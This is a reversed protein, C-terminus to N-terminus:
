ARRMMPIKGGMRRWALAAGFGAIVMAAYLHLGLLARPAGRQVQHASLGFVSTYFLPGVLMALGQLAANVGQLRGQEHVGVRGTLQAQL